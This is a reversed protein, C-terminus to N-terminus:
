RFSDCFKVEFGHLCRFFIFIRVNWGPEGVLGEIDLVLCDDASSVIPIQPDPLSNVQSGPKAARVSTSDLASTKKGSREFILITNRYTLQLM